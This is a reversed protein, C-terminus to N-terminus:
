RLWGWLLAFSLGGPFWRADVTCFDQPAAPVLSVCKIPPRLHDLLPPLGLGLRGNFELRLGMFRGGGMFELMFKGVLGGGVLVYIDFVHGRVCVGHIGVECSCLGTLSSWGQFASTSVDVCRSGLVCGRGRAGGRYGARGGCLTNRCCPLLGVRHWGLWQMHACCLLCWFAETGVNSGRVGCWPVLEGALCYRATPACKPSVAGVIGQCVCLMVAVEICAEQPSSGVVEAGSNGGTWIGPVRSGM